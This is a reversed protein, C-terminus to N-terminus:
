NSIDTKTPLSDFAGFKSVAYAGCKAAYDITHLVKEFSAVWQSFSQLSMNEAAVKSLFGGVFADGAATTDVVKTSPSPFTGNFDNTYFAIPEAGDTILILAVGQSLLSKITSEVQEVGYLAILEERSAKVIDVNSSVDYIVDAAEEPAAWVSARFNIDFCIVSNSAHLKNIAFDTSRKLQKKALSGSCFNVVLPKTLSLNEFDSLQCDHHAANDDYFQFTREGDKDLSIFALATKGQASYSVYKTNVGNNKLQNILFEGFKDQGVKGLFYSKSGLRAAAVAVNAPAGGAYKTFTETIATNGQEDQYEDENSLLDVLAEGFSLIEM